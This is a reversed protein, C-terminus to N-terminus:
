LFSTASVQPVIDLITTGPRMVLVNALAAGHSCVVIDAAAFLALGDMLSPPSVGNDTSGASYVIVRAGASRLLSEVAAASPWQRESADLRSIVLAIPGRSQLKSSHIDENGSSTSSAILSRAIPCKSPLRELSSLTKKM